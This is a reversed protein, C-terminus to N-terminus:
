DFALGSSVQSVVKTVYTTHDIMGPPYVTEAAEQFTNAASSAAGRGGGSSGPGGPSFRKGGGGGGGGSSGSGAKGPTGLSAPLRQQTRIMEESIATLSEFTENARALLDNAIVQGLAQSEAEYGHGRLAVCYAFLRFIFHDESMEQSTEQGKAWSERGRWGAGHHESNTQNFDLRRRIESSSTRLYGLSEDASSSDEAFSSQSRALPPAGTQPGSGEGSATMDGAAESPAQSSGSAMWVNSAGSNNQGSPVPAFLREGGECFGESSSGDSSSHEMTALLKGRGSSTMAAPGSPVVNASAGVVTAIGSTAVSAGNGNITVGASSSRTSCHRSRRGEKRCSSTGSGAGVPSGSAFSPRTSPVAIPRMSPMHTARWSEFERWDMSCADLAPNFGPFRNANQLDWRNSSGSNGSGNAGPSANGGGAWSGACSGGPSSYYSHHHHHHHSRHHHHLNAQRSKQAQAITRKHYDRLLTAMKEREDSTLAPNLAALRWLTVVEDCFKAAAYQNPVMNM